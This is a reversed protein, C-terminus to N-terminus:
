PADAAEAPAPIAAREEESGFRGHQLFHLTLRAAEDSTPLRRHLMALRRFDRAGALRAEEVRVVGDDDG